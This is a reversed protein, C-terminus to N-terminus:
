VGLAALAAEVRASVDRSFSELPGRVGTAFCEDAEVWLDDEIPTLVRRV